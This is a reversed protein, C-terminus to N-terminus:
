IAVLLASCLLASCLLPLYYNSLPPHARGSSRRDERRSRARAKRRGSLEEEHAHCFVIVNCRMVSESGADAPQFPPARAACADVQM